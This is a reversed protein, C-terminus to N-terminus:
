KEHKSRLIKVHTDLDVDAKSIKLNNERATASSETDRKINTDWFQPKIKIGLSLPEEEGEITIRAYLPCTGDSTKKSRKLWFLIHVKQNNM